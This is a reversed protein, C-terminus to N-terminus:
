ALNHVVMVADLWERMWRPAESPLCAYGDWHVFTEGGLANAVIYWTDDARWYVALTDNTRTIVQPGVPPIYGHSWRHDASAEASEVVTTGDPCEPYTIAETTV